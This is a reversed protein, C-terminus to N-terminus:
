RAESGQRTRIRKLTDIYPAAEGESVLQMGRMALSEAKELHTGETYYLWALNNYARPDDPRKKIALRYHKEANPTDGREFYVNGLFYHAEDIGTLASKYEKIAAPYEKNKEYARGLKFHEEPTLPDAHTNIYPLSCGWQLICCILIVVM